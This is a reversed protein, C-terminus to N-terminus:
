TSACSFAFSNGSAYFEVGSTILTAFGFSSCAAGIFSSCAAGTSSFFTSTFVVLVGFNASLWILRSFYVVLVGSTFRSFISGVSSVTCIGSVGAGSSSLCYGSVSSLFSRYRSYVLMVVLVSAAGCRGVLTICLSGGLDTVLESFVGSPLLAFITYAAPM